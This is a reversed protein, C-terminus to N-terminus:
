FLYCIHFNGEQPKHVLVLRRTQLFIGEEVAMRHILLDGRIPWLPKLREAGKGPNPIGPDAEQDVPTWTLAGDRPSSWPAEKLVSYTM